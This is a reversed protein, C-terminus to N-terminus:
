NNSEDLDGCLKIKTTGNILLKLADIMTSCEKHAEILRNVEKGDPINSYELALELSLQENQWYKLQRKYFWKKFM